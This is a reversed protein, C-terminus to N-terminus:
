PGSPRTAHPTWPTGKTKPRTSRFGPIGGGGILAIGGGGGHSTDAPQPKKVPARSLGGTTGERAADPCHTRVAAAARPGQPATNATAPGLRQRGPPQTPTTRRTNSGWEGQQARTM